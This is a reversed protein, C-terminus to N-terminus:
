KGSPVKQEFFNFAKKEVGAVLDLTEDEIVHPLDLLVYRGPYGDFKKKFALLDHGRGGAVDVYLVDDEKVLKSTDGLLKEEVPFWDIWDPRNGRDGEFFSHYANMLKPKQMLYGWLSGTIGLGYQAPGNEQDDPNQYGNEKLYEPLSAM